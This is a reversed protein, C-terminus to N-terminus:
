MSREPHILYECTFRPAKGGFRTMLMESPCLLGSRLSSDLGGDCEDNMETVDVVWALLMTVFLM